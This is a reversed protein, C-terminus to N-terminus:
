RRPPSAPCVSVCTAVPQKLVVIRKDNSPAQMTDGYVRKGEEAFWEIFSAGYAIEGKAEALPKGQELTLIKALEDQNQMVLDFWKRMIISRENASKKSWAKLAGKAAKVAQATEVIGANSVNALVNDDFPNTVEFSKDSSLWRGNIFSGNKILNSQHM